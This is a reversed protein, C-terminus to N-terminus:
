ARSREIRPARNVSPLLRRFSPNEVPSIIAEGVTSLTFVVMYSNELMPYYDTAPPIDSKGAKLSQLIGGMAAVPISCNCHSLPWFPLIKSGLDNGPSKPGGFIGSRDPQM